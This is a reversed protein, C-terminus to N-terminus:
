QAEEVLMSWHTSAGIATQISRDRIPVPRELLSTPEGRPDAYQIGAADLLTPVIDAHMLPAAANRELMEWQAPHAEKWARNAWFVAPVRVDWRTPHRLAHGHLGRRDDLLNEGHDPTFVLFVQGPSKELRAIVENLFGISDDVANAYMARWRHSNETTPGHGLENCEDPYPALLRNFRACYPEHAGYTHLVISRDESEDSLTEDLLPLLSRDPGGPYKQVDADPWAIADGQAGFWYTSFGVKAFAKQFTGDDSVRVQHGPMERSVLLPVSTHTANAGATVDCAVIAGSAVSRVASPGGCGRLYDSRVSEGIILVFTEHALRASVRSADWNSSSSRPNISVGHTSYRTLRPEDAVIAAMIVVGNVPWARAWVAVPALVLLLVSGAAAVVLRRRMLPVSRGGNLRAVLWCLLALIVAGTPLLLWYPKLVASVDSPSFTHWQAALELLDINRDIDAFVCCLGLLAVPYTLPFFLAGPLLLRLLAVVWCSALFLYYENVDWNHWASFTTAAPFLLLLIWFFLLLAPLWSAARARLPRGEFPSPLVNANM